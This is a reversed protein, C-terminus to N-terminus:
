SLFDKRTEVGFQLDFSHCRLLFKMLLHLAFKQQLRFSILLEFSVEDVFSLFIKRDNLSKFLELFVEDVFSSIVKRDTFHTYVIDVPTFILPYWVMVWVSHFLITSADIETM